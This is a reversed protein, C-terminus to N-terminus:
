DADTFTHHVRTIYIRDTYPLSQRFIEGGGIIMLETEGNQRALEIGEEISAVVKCGDPNFGTQRTVVINVRGPLPRYKPPLADWSKRGMLVYHGTTVRTFFQMDLPLHWLLKGKLGIANNDAAAVVHSIKM